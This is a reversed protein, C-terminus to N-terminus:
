RKANEKITKINNKIDESKQHLSDSTQRANEIGKVLDIDQAKVNQASVALPLTLACLAIIKKM